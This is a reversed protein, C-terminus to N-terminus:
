TDAGMKVSEREQRRLWVFSGLAWYDSARQHLAPPRPVLDGGTTFRGMYGRENTTVYNNM